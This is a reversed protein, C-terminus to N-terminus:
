SKVVPWTKRCRACAYVEADVEFEVAKVVVQVNDEPHPFAPKAAVIVGPFLKHKKAWWTCRGALTTERQRKSEQILTPHRQENCLNHQRKQCWSCRLTPPEFNCCCTATSM